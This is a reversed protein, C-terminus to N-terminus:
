HFLLDFGPRRPDGGFNLDDTRVEIRRYQLPWASTKNCGKKPKVCRDRDSPHTPVLLEAGSEGSAIRTISTARYGGNTLPQSPRSRSNVADPGLPEVTSM